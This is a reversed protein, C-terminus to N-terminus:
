LEEGPLIPFMQLTNTYAAGIIQEGAYNGSPTAQAQYADLAKQIVTSRTQLENSRVAFPRTSVVGTERDRVYVQSYQLYGTAVKTRLEGITHSAPIADTMLTPELIQLTIATRAQSYIQFWSADRIKVGQERAAALGARASMNLKAFQYALPVPNVNEEPLPTTM